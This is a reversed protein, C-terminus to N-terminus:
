YVDKAMRYKLQRTNLLDKELDHLIMGVHRLINEAIPAFFDYRGAIVKEGQPSYFFEDLFDSPTVGFAVIREWLCEETM